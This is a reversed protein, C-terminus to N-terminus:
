QRQDDSAGLCGTETKIYSLTRQQLQLWRSKQYRASIAVVFPWKIETAAFLLGVGREKFLEYIRRTIRRPTICVYSLNCVRLHRSAQNLGASLNTLKFEIAIIRGAHFYVMDAYNGLIPVELNIPLRSNEKIIKFCDKVLASENTYCQSVLTRCNASTSVAKLYSM